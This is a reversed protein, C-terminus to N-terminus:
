IGGEQELYIMAMLLQEHHLAGYGIHWVESRGVIHPHPSHGLNGSHQGLVSHLRRGHEWGGEQVGGGPFVGLRIDLDTRKLCGKEKKRESAASVCRNLKCSNSSEFTNGGKKVLILYLRQIHLMWCM